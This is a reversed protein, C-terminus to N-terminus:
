NLLEIYGTMRLIKKRRKNMNSRIIIQKKNIGNINRMDEKSEFMTQLLSIKCTFSLMLYKDIACKSKM